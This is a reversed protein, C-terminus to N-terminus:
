ARCVYIFGSSCQETRDLEVPEDDDNNIFFEVKTVKIM